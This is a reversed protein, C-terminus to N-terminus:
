ARSAELLRIDAEVRAPVQRRQFLAAPLKLLTEALARGAVPDRVATRALEARRNHTILVVTIRTDPRSAQAAPSPVEPM